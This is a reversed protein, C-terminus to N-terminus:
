TTLYTTPIIAWKSVPLWFVGHEHIQFFNNYSILNDRRHLNLISTKQTTFAEGYVATSETVNEM